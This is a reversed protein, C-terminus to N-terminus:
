AGPLRPGLAVSDRFDEYSSASNATHLAAAKQKAAFHGRRTQLFGHMDRMCCPRTTYYYYYYYYYYHYYYYPKPVLHPPGDVWFGRGWCPATM